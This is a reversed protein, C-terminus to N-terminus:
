NRVTVPVAASTTTNGAADAAVATISYSGNAFKSTSITLRWLGGSLVGSGALRGSAYFKVSTVGVNDSAQATTTVSGSIVAGAAPATITVAPATTDATANAVTASVATSTTTNGAADRATATISVPGNPLTTTDLSATWTTGTGSPATAAVTKTTTGATATFTVATVATNDTATASLASTGSLSAGATPATVSVTPAATDANAVTASVATSTTTNGAADRATATISVPGNPLTTTDLSANWTTGTGSPATAAVTKTTTGATATFTVATVATNDTATASLASTGSLSAGATPATVSVTPATTDTVVPAPAWRPIQALFDPEAFGPTQHGLSHARMTAEKAVPTALSLLALGHQEPPVTRDSSDPQSVVIRMTSGSWAAQGLKAPNAAAIAAPDDGFAAVISARDRGDPASGYYLAELDYVANVNYMGAINPIVKAGLTWCALAGGGSTARLVNSVVTYVGAAWAYGAAQISQATPHSYLTGGDNQCITVVGAEVLRQSLNGFGNAIANHDSGAGHYLWVFRVPQGPKVTQPVFLRAPDGQIRVTIDDYLVGTNKSVQNGRRYYEGPLKPSPSPAPTAARAPAVFAGVSLVSLAATTFTRRTLERARRDDSSNM